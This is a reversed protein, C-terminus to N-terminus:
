QTERWITYDTVSGPRVNLTEIGGVYSREHALIVWQTVDIVLRDQHAPDYDTPKFDLVLGSRGARDTTTGGAIRTGPAALLVEIAARQAAESLTWEQMLRTVALLYEAGTRVNTSGLASDLFARLYTRMEAATAPPPEAFQVVFEGPQWTTESIVSGPTITGSPPSEVKVGDALVPEGAITRSDASGDARWTVVNM